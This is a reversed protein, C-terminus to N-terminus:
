AVASGSPLSWRADQRVAYRYLNGQLKGSQSATSAGADNALQKWPGDAENALHSELNPLTTATAFLLGSQLNYM